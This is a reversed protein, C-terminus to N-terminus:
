MFVRLGYWVCVCVCVNLGNAQLQSEFANSTCIKKPGLHSGDTASEVKNLPLIQTGLLVLVM